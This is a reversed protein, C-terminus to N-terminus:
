SRGYPLRHGTLALGLQPCGPGWPPTDVVRNVSSGSQPSHCLHPGSDSVPPDELDGGTDQTGQPHQRDLVQLGRQEGRPERKIQAVLTHTDMHATKPGQKATGETHPAWASSDWRIRLVGMSDPPPTRSKTGLPMLLSPLSHSSVHM